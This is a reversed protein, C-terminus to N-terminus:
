GSAEAPSPVEKAGPLTAICRRSAIPLHIAVTLGFPRPEPEIGAATAHRATAEADARRHMVPLPSAVPEVSTSASTLVAARLLSAHTCSYVCAAAPRERKM